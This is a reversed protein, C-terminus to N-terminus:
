YTFVEGWGPNKGRMFYLLWSMNRFPYVNDIFFSMRQNFWAKSCPILIVPSLCISEAEPVAQFVTLSCRYGNTFIV